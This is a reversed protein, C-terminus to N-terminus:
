EDRNGKKMQKLLLEYAYFTEPTFMNGINYKDIFKDIFKDYQAQNTWITQGTIAKYIFVIKVNSDFMFKPTLAATSNVTVLVKDEIDENLLILEFPASCDFRRSYGHMFSRSYPNRPHDKVILNNFGVNRFASRIFELDNNVKNDAVYSQELFIYKPLVQKKYNFIKNYIDKQKRNIPPLKIIPYNVDYLMMDDLYLYIGKIAAFINNYDPISNNNSEITAYNIFYTSSGDEMIYINLNPHSNFILRTFMDFNSVYLAEYKDFNFTILRKLSTNPNTFIEKKKDFNFQNFEKLAEYNEIYIVNAFLESKELNDIYEKLVLTHDTLMIDYEEDQCLTLKLNIANLLQFVSNVIILKM